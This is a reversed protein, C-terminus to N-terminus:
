PASEQRQRHLKPDVATAMRQPDVAGNLFAAIPQAAALPGEIVERHQVQLVRFSPQRSLWQQVEALQKGFIEALKSDPL